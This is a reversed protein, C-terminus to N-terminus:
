SYLKSVVWLMLSQPLIKELFVLCKYGFGVTKTAPMKKKKILSYVTKAVTMPDKGKQEDKEMKEVSSKVIDEYVTGKDGSSKQRVATFGTKTDGVLINCVQINFKKVELRLTKAWIDLSAKTACYYSQFPIPFISAVSSTNIIKGFNQKRMIPLVEQTVNVAGLFNVNFINKIENIDQNEISGSIGFGANNILVDIADEKELIENVAKKVQEKNTVDCSIYNINKDELLRRSLSYVVFNNQNLYNATIKGIGSTAGTIVVVQRKNQKKNM